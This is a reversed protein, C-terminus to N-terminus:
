ELGMVTEASIDITNGWGAFNPLVLYNHTDSVVVDVKGETETLYAEYDYEPSTNTRTATTTISVSPGFSILRGQLYDNVTQEVEAQMDAESWYNGDTDTQFAIAARAGERSANTVVAKDYFLVGFEIIGLIMICLLPLVFAFEIIAQGRNSGLKLAM